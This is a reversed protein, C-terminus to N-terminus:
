HRYGTAEHPNEKNRNSTRASAPRDQGPPDTQKHPEDVAISAAFVSHAGGQQLALGCASVTAGSTIVDDVLLVRRGVTQSGPLLRYGDKQNELRRALSLTKQPLMRRVPRLDPCVPLGLIRSLRRALLDPVRPSRPADLRPPVPVICDFPNLGGPAEFVPLGGATPAAQAGFLRIATLDALERVLWPRGHLKSQLIARRIEEEYYFASAAGEVGYFVHETAPLRPPHHALAEARPLCGSCVPGEPLAQGLLDGCLPCRRPYLLAAAREALNQLRIQVAGSM